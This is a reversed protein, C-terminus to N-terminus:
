PASLPFVASYFRRFDFVNLNRFRKESTKLFLTQQIEKERNLFIYKLIFLIQFLM